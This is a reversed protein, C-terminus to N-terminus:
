AAEILSDQSWARVARLSVPKLFLLLTASLQEWMM